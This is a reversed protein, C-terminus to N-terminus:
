KTLIMQLHLIDQPHLVGIKRVFDSQVLKLKKSARITSPKDLGSESWNEIMYEGQYASRPPHGTIKLSIVYSIYDQIILVPRLKVKTLDDEFKVQALWIEWKKQTMM